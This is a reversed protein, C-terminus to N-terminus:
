RREVGAQNVVEAMGEMAQLGRFQSPRISETPGAPAPLSWCHPGQSPAFTGPLPKGSHNQFLNM